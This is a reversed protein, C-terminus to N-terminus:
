PMAGQGPRGLPRTFWVARLALLVLLLCGIALRQDLLWQWRSPAGWTANLLALGAYAQKGWGDLSAMSHFAVRQRLHSRVDSM